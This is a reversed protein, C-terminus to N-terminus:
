NYNVTVNFATSAYLGPNQNAGVTLTAGVKLLDDGSGDLVSTTNGVTRLGLNTTYARFDNAPMDVGGAKTLLVTGNAPLTIAYTYTGTGAITFEAATVTGIVNPLTVGATRVRAAAGAGPTLEVTGGTGAQVAINGFNLDVTKVISIPTVITASATATAVAQANSNIAFSVLAFASFIVKKM